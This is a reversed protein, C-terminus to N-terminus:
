SHGVLLKGPTQTSVLKHMTGLKPRAHRQEVLDRVHTIRGLTDPMHTPHRRSTSKINYNINPPPDQVTAKQPTNMYVLNFVPLARALIFNIMLPVAPTVALILITVVILNLM